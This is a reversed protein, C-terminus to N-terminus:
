LRLLMHHDAVSRAEHRLAEPHTGWLQFGAQEYLRRAQPAADTVTLSVLTVGPLTRAHAVAAELLGKGLGCGRYEPAVYMGWLHAKHASKRKADPLLGAMGALTEGAFAGFVTWETRWEAAFDDELSAAFSLPAETLARRRLQAYASRDTEKLLRIMRTRDSSGESM